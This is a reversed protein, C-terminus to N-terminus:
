PKPPEPTKPAKFSGRFDRKAPGVPRNQEGIPHFVAADFASREPMADTNENYKLSKTMEVRSRRKSITKNKL